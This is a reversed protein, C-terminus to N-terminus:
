RLLLYRVRSGAALEGDGRPALVLADAAAARAIMHSEQGSLPELEDGNLRARLFEDRQGNRRVSKALVGAHFGPGPERAGQLALLAPRVFLEFCVLSSVPNGPLGFVLTAGRVGFSIPKGPKVAVRWFVEEVGLESEIRRVLDHPGVSVGGSTVLVDAELGRELAGRHEQEDDAVSVQAEVLAGASAIAAALMVGNAEFIQGAELPEGPRRLESGTTVLAVHPRRACAVEALGAAGLAALEAPRLITGADVVVSGEALDGGRPRVHAGPEVAPVEVTDGDEAVVEIPIVADAGEPVVGGTAIGMAEGPELPGPAPRGAAIRAVVSLRGPADAARLAFGDMASSPFPPLDVTSRASEALVRGVAEGLRVPEAPLPRARELILRRAEDVPLLSAM